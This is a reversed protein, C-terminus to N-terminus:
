LKYKEFESKSMKRLPKKYTHEFWGYGLSHRNSGSMRETTREMMVSDDSILIVVYQIDPKDESAYVQGIKIDERRM